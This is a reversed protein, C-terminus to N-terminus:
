KNAVERWRPGGTPETSGGPLQAMPWCGHPRRGDGRAHPYPGADQDSLGAGGQGFRGRRRDCSASGHKFGLRLATAATVFGDLVATMEETTLWRGGHASRHCQTVVPGAEPRRRGRRLGTLSLERQWVDVQGDNGWLAVESGLAVEEEDRSM